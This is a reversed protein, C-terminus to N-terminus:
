KKVQKVCDNLKPVYAQGTKQCIDRMNAEGILPNHNKPAESLCGAGEVYFGGESKCVGFAVKDIPAADDRLAKIPNLLADLGPKSDANSSGATGPPVSAVPAVSAISTVTGKHIAGASRQSKECPSNRYETGGVETSCKYLTQSQSIACALLGIALFYPNRKM